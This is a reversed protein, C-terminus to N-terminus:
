EQQVFPNPISEMGDAPCVLEVSPGRCVVLGLERTDETLRHPDDPDRLFETTCDLVMNHLNDCGKLIGIAERGGTFKVRIRKDLYKSLDIISEKRRKETPKEGMSSMIHDASPNWHCCVVINNHGRLCKELQGSQANWIYVGGDQGGAAAFQADPSFTPRVIDLGVRFEESALCQTVRKMRLNVVEVTNNRTCALVQTCDPSIDLGTIRASLTIKDTNNGTREDWIRLNHDFHGTIVAGLGTCAVVDQSASGALITRKCQCRDVDWLKITRDSSVTVVRKSSGIFKASVVRESHGTLNVRLRSDSLTWVRCSFDSSAGLVVTENPDFDIATVAANCGVLTSRLECKGEVVAWLRLKRDFGASGFLQGSPTFRVSNVEGENADIEAVAKQPIVANFVQAPGTFPTEDVSISAAEALQKRIAEQAKRYNVDHEINKLQEVVVQLKNMREILKCRDDELERNKAQVCEFSESIALKEERLLKNSRELKHVEDLLNMNTTQLKKVGTEIEAIRANKSAILKDKEQVSKNLEIFEGALNGKQRHLETLEEQLRFIKQEFDYSVEGTEDVTGSKRAETSEVSSWCPQM